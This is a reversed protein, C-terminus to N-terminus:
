CQRATPRVTIVNNRTPAIAPSGRVWSVRIDGIRTLKPGSAPFGTRRCYSRESHPSSTRGSRGIYYKRITETHYQKSKFEPKKEEM